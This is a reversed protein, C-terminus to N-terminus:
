RRGRQVTRDYLGGGMHDATELALPIWWHRFARPHHKKLEYSLLVEAAVYASAVAVLRTTSPHRGFAPNYEVGGRDLLLKTETMDFAASAALAGSAVVFKRDVVKPRPADPLLPVTQANAAFAWGVCFAIVLAVIVTWKVLFWALDNMTMAVPEPPDFRLKM